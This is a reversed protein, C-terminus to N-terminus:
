PNEKLEPAPTVDAWTRGGRLEDLWWWTFPPNAADAIWLIKTAPRATIPLVASPEPPMSQGLTESEPNIWLRAGKAGTEIVIFFVQTPHFADACFVIRDGFALGLRSSPDPAEPDVGVVLRLDDHGATDLRLLDVTM